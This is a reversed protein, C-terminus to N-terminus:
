DKSCRVRFSVITFLTNTFNKLQCNLTKLEIITATNEVITAHCGAAITQWTAPVDLLELYWSPAGTKLLIDGTASFDAFHVYLSPLHEGPPLSKELGIGVAGDRCSTKKVLTYRQNGLIMEASNTTAAPIDSDNHIPTPPTAPEPLKIETMTGSINQCVIVAIPMAMLLVARILGMKNRM